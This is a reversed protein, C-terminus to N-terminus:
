PKVGDEWPNEALVLHAMHEALAVEEETEPYKQYGRIYQEELEKQRKRRLYEEVARRFFESRTEGAALREAEVGKLLGEPLSIAIKATKSM